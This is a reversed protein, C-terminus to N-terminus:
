GRLRRLYLQLYKQYQASKEFNEAQKRCSEKSFDARLIAQALAEVTDARSDKKTVVMGCGDTLSEPCGGTDYTIVPTGCALAELNTTPFNDEHTPNVYIDAASYLEVLEQVSETRGIGIIGEPLSAIQKDNLGVLVIRYQSPLLQRLLHFDKLGKRVEWVNAVGLVMPGSGIGYRQRIDSSVPQFVSLDIGNPINQIDFKGLFSRHTLEALWQSPTVITMGSVATFLLKKQDYNKRSRDALLTMPYQNKQVCHHCGTVWRDCRIYDFYACHGTFAWCDHLTWIVPRDYAGLFDFLLKVNLYYGHINHLHIIDPDYDRIDEILRKTARSSYFGQRDTLRSLLGHFLVERESEFRFCDEAICIGRGYGIRCHHGAKKLVDSLGQVIKGTSGYGCVSNIQYVKM